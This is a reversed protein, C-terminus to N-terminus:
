RRRSTIMRREEPRRCLEYEARIQKVWYELRWTQLEADTVPDTFSAVMGQWCPMQRANDLTRQAGDRVLEAEDGAVTPATTVDLLTRVLRNAQIMKYLMPSDLRLLSRLMKVNGDTYSVTGLVRTVFLLEFNNIMKTYAPSIPTLFEDHRWVSSAFTDYFHAAGLPRKGRVLARADVMEMLRAMAARVRGRLSAPTAGKADLTMGFYKVKCVVQQKEGELQVGCRYIV